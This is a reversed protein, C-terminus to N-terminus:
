LGKLCALSEQKDAASAHVPQLVCTWVWYCKIYCVVPALIPRVVVRIQGVEKVVGSHRFLM